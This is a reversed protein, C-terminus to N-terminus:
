TIDEESEETKLEVTILARGYHCDASLFCQNCKPSRANCILKGHRILLVHMDRKIEDPMTSNMFEYTQERTTDRVFGLRTSVRQVHTDVPFEPRKMNFMLVCSATKPGIGKYKTLEKKAEETPRDRLHELSLEGHEQLVQNLLGQIIAGKRQALGGMQIVRALEAPPATRVREWDEQYTGQLSAWAASSNRDTTNQSLVTSILSSLVTRQGGCVNTRRSARKKQQESADRSHQGTRKSGAADSEEEEELEIEIRARKRRTSIATPRRAPTLERLQLGGAEDGEEEKELQEKRTSAGTDAQQEQKPSVLLWNSPYHDRLKRHVEHYFAILESSSSSPELKEKTPAASGLM